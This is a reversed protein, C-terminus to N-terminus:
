SVTEGPRQLARYPSIIRQDRTQEAVMQLHNAKSVGSRASIRDISARCLDDEEMLEMAAKLVADRHEESHPRRRARCPIM